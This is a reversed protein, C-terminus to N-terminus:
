WAVTVGKVTYSNAFSIHGNHVQREKTITNSPTQFRDRHIGWSNRIFNGRHQSPMIQRKLDTEIHRLHELTNKYVRLSRYKTEM